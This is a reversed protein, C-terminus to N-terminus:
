VPLRLPSAPGGIEALFVACLWVVEVGDFFFFEEAPVLYLSLQLGGQCQVDVM